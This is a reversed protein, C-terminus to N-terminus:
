AAGGAKKGTVFAEPTPNMGVASSLLAIHEAENTLIASATGRLKPDSLRPLADIYAAVATNEIDLAFKVVAAQDALAPFGYDALARNPKGGLQKIAQVLGQAHEQEQQLFSKGLTLANGTLKPAGAEYAAVAMYELDLASNLLDADSPQGSSVSGGGDGGGAANGSTNDGCAALFVASGGAFTVGATHFFRRRTQPDRAWSEPHM